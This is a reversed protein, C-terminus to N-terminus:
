VKFITKRKSSIPKLLAVVFFALTTEVTIFDLCVISGGLSCLPCQQARQNCFLRGPHSSLLGFDDQDFTLAFINHTYLLSNIVPTYHTSRCLTIWSM